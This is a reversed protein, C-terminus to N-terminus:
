VMMDVMICDINIALIWLYFSNAHREKWRCRAFPVTANFPGGPGQIIAVKCRM